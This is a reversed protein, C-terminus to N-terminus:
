LPLVVDVYFERLRNIDQKNNSSDHVSSARGGDAAKESSCDKEVAMSQWICLRDVYLDLLLSIDQPRKVKRKMVPLDSEGPDKHLGGEVSLNQQTSELALVELVLIIQLFTERIKQEIIKANTAETMLESSHYAPVSAIYDLWWSLVDLNEEPYLGNKGIKEKKSKRVLKKYKAVVENREDDSLDASPLDKVLCPLAERYKKDLLNMPVILARLHHVLRHRSAPGGADDLFGARARSLPGKAFYALSAKSKYLLDMYQTKVSKLLDDPNQPGQEKASPIFGQLPISKCSKTVAPTPETPGAPSVDKLFSTPNTSIYGPKRLDCRAKDYSSNTSHVISPSGDRAKHSAIGPPRQETKGLRPRKLSTADHPDPNQLVELHELEIWGALKCQAYIGPQVREIAHLSKSSSEIILVHPLTDEGHERHATELAPIRASFLRIGQDFGTTGCPDLYALPLRIRPLLM